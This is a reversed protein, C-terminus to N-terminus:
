SNLIDSIEKVEMRLEGLVRQLKLYDDARTRARSSRLKELSEDVTLNQDVVLDKIRFLLQVDKERYSRNGARNRAPTLQPFDDEWKKILDSEVELMESVQSLSYFLKQLPKQISM